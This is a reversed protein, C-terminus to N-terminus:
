GCRLKRRRSQDSPHRAPRQALRQRPDRPEHQHRAEDRERGDVDEVVPLRHLRLDDVPLRTRRDDGLLIRNPKFVAFPLLLLGAALVLAIVVGLKDLVIARRPLKTDVGSTM